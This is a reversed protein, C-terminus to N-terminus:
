GFACRPRRRGAEWPRRRWSRPAELCGGSSCSGPWLTRCTPSPCRTPTSSGPTRTRGPARSPGRCTKWGPRTGTALLQYLDTRMPHGSADADLMGHQEAIAQSTRPPLVHRHSEATSGGANESRIVMRNVSEGVTQPKRLLVHPPPVPDFRRYTVEPTRLGTENPFLDQQTFSVSDGALDVARARFTYAHGFRLRPLSGPPVTFRTTFPFDEDKVPEPDALTGDPQLARGIRDVALSWGARRMLSEGLYLDTDDTDGSTSPALTVQGEEATSVSQGDREFVYVGERAMLSRWSPDALDRVDWRHGRVLDDAYLDLTASRPNGNQDYAASNAEAARDFAKILETARGSRAVSLGASRLAPLSFRDASAASRKKLRSGDVVRSRTVNDAFQRSLLAGGDPDVPVVTFRDGLGVRLMGRDVDSADADRPAAEFRNGGILCRTRPLVDARGTAPPPSASWTIQLSAWTQTAPGTLLATVAPDDVEFELALGLVRQLGRYERTAAIV